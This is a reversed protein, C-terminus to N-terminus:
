GEFFNVNVNWGVTNDGYDIRYDMIKDMLDKQSELIKVRDSKISKETISIFDSVHKHEGVFIQIPQTNKDVMVWAIFGFLCAVMGIILALSIIIYIDKIATM